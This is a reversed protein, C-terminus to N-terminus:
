KKVVGNAASKGPNYMKEIQKDTLSVGYLRSYYDKVDATIDIDKFLDPYVKQAMWELTVPTDAGPTYSRYIGLPLKYVQKNKVAAVSSWDDNGIANNYLDEPLAPTFNTIFIIDPNWQYVQEMNIIANSNDAAIGEAVNIGGVADCWYQGFFSKGSTIMTKDDYQFLFLIKKKDKQDIKGVTSQIKDYIEKSYDSVEKSKDSEPFIQSLLSIWQDYTKIVDYNWKSPSVAVATLGANRITDGLETSGANYFVIDPKLAILSEINLNGGEMFSTDAQTIEPYLEALLGNQAASMSAPHIGVIKKASGLFVTLVSALPLIDTVVVRNINKPVKVVNDADDTITITNSGSDTGAATQSADAKVAGSTVQSPDEKSAAPDKSSCGIFLNAILTICLFLTIIRKTM